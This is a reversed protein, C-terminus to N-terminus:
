VDSIQGTKKGSIHEVIEDDSLTGWPFDMIYVADRFITARDAVKHLEDMRHSIFIVAKGQKKFRDILDFLWKVEKDGLASTAEDLILIEPNKYIAKAIEVLQKECLNLDRVLCYPNLNVGIEKLFTEAQRYIQKFNIQGFRNMPENALFINEAVSLDQILSLEQFVAAIGNKQADQTNNIEIKKGDVIINGCDRVTVGCIIKVLTSKGAGNEGILVHTEGRYCKFCAESLACVGAYRKSINSVELIAQKKPIDNTQQM